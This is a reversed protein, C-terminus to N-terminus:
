GKTRQTGQVRRSNEQEEREEPLLRHSGTQAIALGECHVRVCPCFCRFTQLRRQSPCACLIHSFTATPRKARARHLQGSECACKYSKFAGTGADWRLECEYYQGAHMQALVYGHAVIESGVTTYTLQRVYRELFFDLGYQAMAPSIGSATVFDLFSPLMPHPTTLSSPSLDCDRLARLSRLFPQEKLLAGDGKV